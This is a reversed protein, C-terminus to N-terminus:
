RENNLWGNSATHSMTTMGSYAVCVCVYVCVYMYIRIYMKNSRKELDLGVRPGVWGRILPVPREERSYFPRNTAKVVWSWITDLNLILPAISSSGKYTQMVSPSLKVNKKEEGWYLIDTHRYLRICLFFKEAIFVVPGCAARKNGEVVYYRTSIVLV